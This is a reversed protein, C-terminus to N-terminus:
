GQILLITIEVAVAVQTLQELSLPQPIMEAREVAV